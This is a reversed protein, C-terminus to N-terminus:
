TCTQKKYVSELEGALKEVDETLEVEGLTGWTMGAKLTVDLQFPEGYNLVPRMYNLGQKIAFRAMALFDTSPYDFLNSDHVQALLKSPAFDESDDELWLAMSQNAIDGVTSQPIFSYGPKFMDNGIRGMFYCKRGFCNELTRTKRLQERIKEHWKRIGPYAEHYLDLYMKGEKESLGFKLAFEKFGIDYNGSHNPAKAGERISKAKPLFRSDFIEPIRAKREAHIEEPSTKGSKLLEKIIKNERAILDEPLKAMRSATVIHPSRKTRAVELMAPDRSLYAVLFWEAGAEDFDLLM